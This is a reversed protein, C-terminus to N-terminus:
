GHVAEKALKAEICDKLNARARHLMRRIASVSSSVETAFAECTLRRRYVGEVVERQRAPLAALCEGLATFTEATVDGRGPIMRDFEAAVAEIEESALTTVHKGRIALSRRKALVKYRAIGRLWAAFPGRQDYEDLHQWAAIFVEQVIDDAADPMNLCACIFARLPREHERVLIEFLGERTRRQMALVQETSEWCYNAGGCGLLVHFVQFNPKAPRVGAVRWPPQKAKPPAPLTFSGPLIQYLSALFPPQVGGLSM